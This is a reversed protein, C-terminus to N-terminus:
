IKYQDSIFLLFTCTPNSGIGGDRLRVKLTGMADLYKFLLELESMAAVADQWLAAVVRSCFFAVFRYVPGPSAVM